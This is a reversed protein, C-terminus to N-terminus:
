TTTNSPLTMYNGRERRRRRRKRGRGGRKIKKVEERGEDKSRKRKEKKKEEEKSRRRKKETKVLERLTQRVYHEGNHLIEHCTDTLVSCLASEAAGAYKTSIRVSAQHAKESWM